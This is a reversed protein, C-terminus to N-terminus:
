RILLGSFVDVLRVVFLLYVWGFVWVALLCGLWILLFLPLLLGGFTFEICTDYYLEYCSLSCLLVILLVLLDYDSLLLLLVFSILM